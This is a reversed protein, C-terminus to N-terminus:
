RGIPHPQPLAPPVCTPPAGQRSRPRYGLQLPWLYWSRQNGKTRRALMATFAREVEALAEQKDDSRGKKGMRGGLHTYRFWLWGAGEHSTGKDRYVRGVIVCFHNAAYDYPATQEGIEMRSW